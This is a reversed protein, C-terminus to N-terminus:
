PLTFSLDGDLGDQFPDAWLSEVCSLDSERKGLTLCGVALPGM